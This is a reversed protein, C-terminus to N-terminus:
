VGCVMVMFLVLMCRWVVSLIRMRNRTGVKRRKTITRVRIVFYIKTIIICCICIVGMVVGCLSFFLWVWFVVSKVCILLMLLLLGM